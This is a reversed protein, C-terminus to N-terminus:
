EGSRMVARLGLWAVIGRIYRHQERFQRLAAAANRSLLRFDGVEAPIRKDVMKRMLFYFLTIAKRKLWEDGPRAIRQPSVVDYGERYLRVMEPILQPPDQLDADMVIVADGTSFDIGATVAAQHGFNRSFCLVKIRPDAAARTLLDLTEDTSGDNVFLIEYECDISELVPVVSQLLLPIADAENLVPIVLSIKEACDRM